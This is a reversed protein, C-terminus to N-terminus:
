SMQFILPGAQKVKLGKFFGTASQVNELMRQMEELSLGSFKQKQYEPNATQLEGHKIKNEVKIAKGGVDIEAKKM